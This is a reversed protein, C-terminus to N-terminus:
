YWIYPREHMTTHYMQGRWGFELTRIVELGFAHNSEGHFEGLLSM